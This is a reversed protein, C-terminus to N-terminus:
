RHRAIWPYALEALPRTLSSGWLNAIASMGVTRYLLEFASVGKIWKGRSDHVHLCEMMAERTVGDDRYPADDFNPASCDVLNLRQGTDHVKIAQMESNCLECSADYYITLPYQENMDVGMLKM